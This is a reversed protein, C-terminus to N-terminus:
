GQGNDSDPLAHGGPLFLAQPHGTVPHRLVEVDTEYVQRITQRTFVEETPGDLLVSGGKLFVLRECYMAALNLDHIASLVLAGAQSKDLVLDFIEVKRAVDLSSSAEDLLLAGAQQALARAMLVRQFEGGSLSDVRRGGLHTVGTEAMAEEARALDEPGYGGLFSLYPYRGMLVVSGTLLGISQDARQPVSALARAREGAAMSGVRKGRVLVEGELPSLVGALALLLTTKGSGNPGLIGVREGASFELDVGQLVPVDGYGLSLNRCRIM